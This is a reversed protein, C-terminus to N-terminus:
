GNPQLDDTSNLQINLLESHVGVYEEAHQNTKGRGKEEFSVRM